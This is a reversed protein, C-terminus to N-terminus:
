PTSQGAGRDPQKEAPDRLEDQRVPERNIPVGPRFYFRIQKGGLRRRQSQYGNAKLIRGIRREAAETCQEPKGGIGDIWVDMITFGGLKKEAKQEYDLYGAVHGEWADASKFEM